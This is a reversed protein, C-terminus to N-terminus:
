DIPYIRKDSTKKFEALYGQSGKLIRSIIRDGYVREITSSDLNTTFITAKNQRAELVSTLIDLNYTSAKTAEKTTSLESGLDDLVVVDALKLEKMLNGTISKRAAEDNMAFKLQELLERYSVFLCKKEYNSKKLLGQIMAIALHSKGAGPNGSFVAHIEKGEMIDKCSKIAIRKAETTEKDLEKYNSFNCDWLSKDTILSGYKLYNIGKQKLSDEYLRMTTLAEKKSLSRYGCELCIPPCRPGDEGHEKWAKMHGKCEPCPIEVTYFYKRDLKKMAEALSEM